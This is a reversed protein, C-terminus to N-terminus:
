PSIMPLNAGTLVPNALLVDRGRIQCGSRRLPAFHNARSARECGRALDAIRGPIWNGRAARGGEESPPGRARADGTWEVRRLPCTCIVDALNGPNQVGEGGRTLVLDM